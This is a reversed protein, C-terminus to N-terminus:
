FSFCALASNLSDAKGRNKAFKLVHWGPRSASQEEMSQGTGDVSGDDILVVQLKESPYDLGSLAQCLDPIMAVEDRCPVLILVEPLYPPGLFASTSGQDSGPLIALTFILRRINFVLLIAVVPLTFILLLTQLM